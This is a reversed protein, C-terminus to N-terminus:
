LGGQRRMGVRRSATLMISSGFMYCEDGLQRSIENHRECWRAHEMKWPDEVEHEWQRFARIYDFWCECPAVVRDPADDNCPVRTGAHVYIDYTFIHKRECPKYELHCIPRQPPPGLLREKAISRVEGLVSALPPFATEFAGRPRRSMGRLALRIDSIEFAQLEEAYIRFTAESVVTQRSEGLRALEELSQTLHQTPTLAPQTQKRELSTPSVVAMANEM